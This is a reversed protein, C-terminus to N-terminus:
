SSRRRTPSNKKKTKGRASRRPKAEPKKPKLWSEIWLDILQKQDQPSMVHGTRMVHVSIGDILATVAYSALRANVNKGVEGSVQATRIMKEALRQWNSLRTTVYELIKPEDQARQWLGILFKWNTQKEADTPITQYLVSRMYEIKSPAKSAEVSIARRIQEAIGESADVLLKEMSDIYPVLAGTTFGAEEAVARLTAGAVGKKEVTRKAAAIVAERRSAHDVKKPLVAGCLAGYAGL